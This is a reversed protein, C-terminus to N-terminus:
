ALRRGREEEAVLDAPQEADAETTEDHESGEGEKV